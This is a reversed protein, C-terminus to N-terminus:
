RHVARPPPTVRLLSVSFFRRVLANRRVRVGEHYPENKRRVLEDHAPSWIFYISALIGVICLTVAWALAHTVLGGTIGSLISPALFMLVMLIGMIACCRVAARMGAERYETLLQQPILTFPALHM